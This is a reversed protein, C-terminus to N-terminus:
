DITNSTPPTHGYCAMVIEGSKSVFVSSPAEIEITIKLTKLYDDNEAEGNFDIMSFFKGSKHIDSEERNWYM